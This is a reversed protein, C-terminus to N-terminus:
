GHLVGDIINIQRSNVGSESKPCPGFGNYWDYVETLKKIFKRAWIPVNLPDGCSCEHAYATIDGECLEMGHDVYYDDDVHEGDPLFCHRVSGSLVHSLHWAASTNDHFLRYGSGIGDCIYISGDPHFKVAIDRMM